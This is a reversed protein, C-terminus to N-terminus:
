CNKGNSAVEGVYISNVKFSVKTLIKYTNSIIVPIEKLVWM